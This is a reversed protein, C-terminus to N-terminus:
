GDRYGDHYGSDRAAKVTDLWDSATPEPPPAPAAARDTTRASPHPSPPEPNGFAGPRWAAFDALEERPIFRSQSGRGAGPTGATTGAAPPAAGAAFPKSSNM